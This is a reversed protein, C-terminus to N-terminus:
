RKLKIELDKQQKMMESQDEGSKDRERKLESELLAVKREMEERASTEEKTKQDNMSSM